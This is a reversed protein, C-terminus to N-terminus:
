KKGIRKYAYYITISAIIAFFASLLIKVDFQRPPTNLPEKEAGPSNENEPGLVLPQAYLAEQTGRGDNLYASGGTLGVTLRGSAPLALRLRFLLSRASFGGPAGGTFRVTKEGPVYEPEQQWVTLISGDTDVKVSPGDSNIGEFVISGEAVNLDKSRPDITVEIVRTGDQGGSGPLEQFNLQAAFAGRPFALMIMMLIFIPMPRKFIEPM